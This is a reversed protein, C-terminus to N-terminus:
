KGPEFLMETRGDSWSVIVFVARCAVAEDLPLFFLWPGLLQHPQCFIASSSNPGFGDSAVNEANKLSRYIDVMLLQYRMDLSATSQTQRTTGKFTSSELNFLLRIIRSNIQGAEDTKHVNTCYKIANQLLVSVALTFDDGAAKPARQGRNHTDDRDKTLDNKLFEVQLRRLRYKRRNKAIVESRFYSTLDQGTHTYLLGAHIDM